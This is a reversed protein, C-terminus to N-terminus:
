KQMEEYVAKVQELPYKCFEAIAEPSKGDDLMEKIKEYDRSAIGQEIGQEIGQKLGNEFEDQMMEKLTM